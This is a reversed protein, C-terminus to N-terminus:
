LQTTGVEQCKRVSHGDATMIHWGSVCVQLGLPMRPVISTREPQKCPTTKARSVCRDIDEQWHGEGSRVAACLQAAYASVGIPLWGALCM